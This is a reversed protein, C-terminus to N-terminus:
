LVDGHEKRYKKLQRDADRLLRNMEAKSHVTAGSARDHGGGGYKAALENITTFRSRLRVRIPKEDDGINDIFAIWIISGRIESLSSVVDSAEERTLNFKNQMKKDVYIYAVGNKTIKIHNLVYAKFRFLAFDDLYLNAYMTETDIGTDLLEGAMRMTKGSVSAFKFRGSDTVMGTYILTSATKDAPFIDRRLSYMEAIMECCSSANECVWSIDGYPAVDIHHDIKILERCLSYKSNSIRDPSATDTVIGLASSYFGDDTQDDEDGLFAFGESYDENIVRIDKKPFALKLLRRLGLSSGLADGDPRIHRMIVIRDYESIKGIIRDIIAKNEMTKGKM